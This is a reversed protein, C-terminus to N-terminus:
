DGQHQRILDLATQALPKVEECRPCLPLPEASVADKTPVFWVGCVARVAHGNILASAMFKERIYHKHTHPLPGLPRWEAIGVVARQLDLLQILDAKAMSVIFVLGQNRPLYGPVALDHDSGLLGLLVETVMDRFLGDFAGTLRLTITAMSSSEHATSADVTPGIRDHELEVSLAADGSTTASPLEPLSALAVDGIELARRLLDLFCTAVESQWRLGATAQEERKRMLYDLAGPYWISKQSKQLRNKARRHFADHSDVYVLWPDGARDLIVAGRWGSSKEEIEFVNEGASKTASDHKQCRHGEYVSARAAELISHKFTDLEQLVTADGHKLRDAVSADQFMDLPLQRVVRVTPRVKRM